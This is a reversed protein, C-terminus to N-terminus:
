PHRSGDPMIAGKLSKARALQEQSLNRADHLDVGTLDAGSLNANKFDSAHMDAGALNANSFNAYAHDSYTLNAGRADAGRLDAGFFSIETLYLNRLNAGRLDHNNFTIVAAFAEVLGNEYLFHVLIGKGNNDLQRLADTTAVQAALQVTSGAQAEQLDEHLMLDNIKKRHEMLVIMQQESRAISLTTDQQQKGTQVSLLYGEISLWAFGILMIASPLILQLRSSLPRSTHQEGNRISAAM